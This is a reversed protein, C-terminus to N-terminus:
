KNKKHKYKIKNALTNQKDFNEFSLLFPFDTVLVILQKM